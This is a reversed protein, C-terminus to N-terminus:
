KFVDPMNLYGSLLCMVFLFYHLNWIPLFVFIHSLYYFLYMYPKSCLNTNQVHTKYMTIENTNQFFHIQILERERIHKEIGAQLKHFNRKSWILRRLDRYQWLAFIVYFSSLIYKPTYIIFVIRYTLSYSPPGWEILGLTGSANRNKVKESACWSTSDKHIGYLELQFRLSIQFSFIYKHISLFLIKRKSSMNFNSVGMSFLSSPM